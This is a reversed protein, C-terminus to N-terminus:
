YTSWEDKYIRPVVVFKGDTKEIIIYEQDYEEDYLIAIKGKDVGNIPCVETISFKYNYDNAYKSTYSSKTKPANPEYYFVIYYLAYLLSGIIGIALLIGSIGFVIVETDKWIKHLKNKM